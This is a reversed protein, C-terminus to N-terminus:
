LNEKTLIEKPMTDRSLLQITVLATPYIIPNLLNPLKGM